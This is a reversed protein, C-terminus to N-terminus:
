SMAIVARSRRSVTGVEEAALGVTVKGDYSLISIGLGVVGSRPVWFM